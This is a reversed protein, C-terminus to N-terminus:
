LCRHIRRHARLSHNLDNATLIPVPRLNNPRTTIKPGHRHQFRRRLGPICRRSQSTEAPAQICRRSQPLPTARIAVKQGNVADVRKLRFTMKGGIIGFIKKRAGDVIAGIAEAGKPIVVTDEVRVDHAVKFRVPDGEVADSPIDEALILRISLADGLVVPIAIPPPARHCGSASTDGSRASNNRRGLAARAPEDVAWPAGSRPPSCSSLLRHRHRPAKLQLTRVPLRRSSELNQRNARRLLAGSDAQRKMPILVASSKGCRSIASPRTRGSARKWSHEATRVSCQTEAPRHAPRRVSARRHADLHPLLKRPLRVPGDVDRYLVAGFSFIDSRQDVKKGEAQEPSM